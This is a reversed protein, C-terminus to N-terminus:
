SKKKKNKRRKEMGELRWPSRAPSVWVVEGLPLGAHVLEGAPKAGHWQDMGLHSQVGDQKLVLDRDEALFVPVNLPESLVAAGEPSVRRLPFSVRHLNPTMLTCPSPCPSVCTQRGSLVNGIVLAGSSSLSSSSLSLRSVLTLRKPTFFAFLTCLSVPKGFLVTNWVHAFVCCASSVVLVRPYFIKQIVRVLVVDDKRSKRCEHPAITSSLFTNTIEFRAVWGTM